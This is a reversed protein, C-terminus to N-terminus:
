RRATARKGTESKRWTRRQPRTPQKRSRYMDSVYGRNYFMRPKEIDFYPLRPDHAFTLFFPSDGTARHVHCNYSLMMSPLLDDWDMTPNKDLMVTIYKRMSRNYSETSSNTQPHYPSTRRKDVDWLACLRNVLENCFGKGQDLIMMTPASFRCFWSEFLVKTVQDETKNPIAALEVYKTFADTMVVVYHNGAASTKLPGYLDIHLRKNPSSSIPMSMLAAKKTLKAKVRQFLPCRHVFASIDLTMGPWYYGLRVRDITMTEGQQGGDRSAHAAEMVLQRLLLPAWVAMTIRTKTKIKYWLVNDVLICHNSMTVVWGAKARDRPLVSNTLYENVMKTREEKDQEKQLNVGITSELKCCPTAQPPRAVIARSWIEGDDKNAPDQEEEEEEEAGRYAPVSNDEATRRGSRTIVCIPAAVHRRSLADAVTNRWGEKYEIVFNFKLMLLQLNNLTKKHVTSMTELPRHNTFLTFQKPPTLYMDFYDIGWCATAKKILFAPYNAEHDKLGRSAYAVV